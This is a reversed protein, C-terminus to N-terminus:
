SPFELGLERAAARTRAQLTNWDGDNRIEVDALPRRRDDPWQSAILKRASDEDMADRELLRKLRAEIPATVLMVADYRRYSGTEMMLAASVLCASEGQQRLQSVRTLITNQIIPHLIGNLRQRAAEDNAILRRLFPRNLQGDAGMVEEGFAERVLRLGDSGPAVVERSIQDADIHPIHGLIRAVSSKGSAIGGTLGITKM